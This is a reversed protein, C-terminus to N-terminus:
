SGALETLEELAVVDEPVVVDQEEGHDSFTVTGGSGGGSRLRLPYPPDDDAVLLETDDDQLRLDLELENGDQTLSGSVRASGAEELADAALDAVDTGTKGELPSDGGCATLLLVGAVLVAASSRRHRV